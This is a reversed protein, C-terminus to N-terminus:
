EYDMVDLSARGEFQGCDQRWRIYQAPGRWTMRRIWARAKRLPVTWPPVARWPRIGHQDLVKIWDRSSAQALQGLYDVTLRSAPIMHRLVLEPDYGVTWGTDLATMVLDNDEGSALSGGSRGLGLLTPTDRIRQAWARCVSLRSVMGAGVPSCEPYSRAKGANWAARLATDGLDRCALPALDHSFWDPPEAEYLPFAKGGTLGLGPERQFLDVALSIYDPNLLNDDDCWCIIEGAAEEIGRLRARTLGREPERVLKGNPHWEVWEWRLGPDSGNDILLFEWQRTDLTQMRLAEVTPRLREFPPNHACVIVSVKM